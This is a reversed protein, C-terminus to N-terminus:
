DQHHYAIGMLHPMTAMEYKRVAEYYPMKGNEGYTKYDFCEIQTIGLATLRDVTREMDQTNNYMVIRPVRVQIREPGVLRLLLELNDGFRIDIM